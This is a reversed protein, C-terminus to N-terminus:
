RFGALIYDVSSLFSEHNWPTICGEWNPDPNQFGSESDCDGYELEEDEGNPRRRKTDPAEDDGSIPAERKVMRPQRPQHMLQDVDCPRSDQPRPNKSQDGHSGHRFPRKRSNDRSAPATPTCSGSGLSSAPGIRSVPTAPLSPPPDKPGPSVAMMNEICCMEYHHRLAARDINPPLHAELGHHELILDYPVFARVRLTDPHISFLRDNFLEHLHSSLLLGNAASWTRHWAAELREPSDMPKRALDDGVPYTHYHQQSVVHCAQIAPGLGSGPYWAQGKKTVVCVSGETLCSPRFNVMVQKAGEIDMNTDPPTVLNTVDVDATGQLDSAPSAVDSAINKSPTQLSPLARKSKRYPLGTFRPDKSPKNPPLYRPDQRALPRPIHQACGEDLHAGLPKAGDLTCGAHRVVHLGIVCNDPGLPPSAVPEDLDCILAHASASTDEESTPRLSRSVTGVPLFAISHWGKRPGPGQTAAPEQFCLALEDAIDRYTLTNGDPSPLHFLGAFRQRDSGCLLSINWGTARQARTIVM